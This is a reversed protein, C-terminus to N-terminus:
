SGFKIGGKQSILNGSTSTQSELKLNGSSSTMNKSRLDKAKGQFRNKVFDNAQSEPSKKSESPRVGKLAVNKSERFSDRGMEMVNDSAYQSESKGETDMTSNARHKAKMGVIKARSATVAARRFRLEKVEGNSKVRVPEDLKRTRITKSKIAHSKIFNGPM